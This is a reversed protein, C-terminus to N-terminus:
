RRGTLSDSLARLRVRANTDYAQEHARAPSMEFFFQGSEFGDATVVHMVVATGEEVTSQPQVGAELIMSTNM